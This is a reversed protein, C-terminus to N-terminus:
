FLVLEFCNPKTFAVYIVIDAPRHEFGIRRVIQIRQEDVIWVRFEIEEFMHVVLTCLEVGLLSDPRALKAKLIEFQTFCDEIQEQM